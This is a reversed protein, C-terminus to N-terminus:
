ETLKASTGPDTATKGPSPTVDIVQVALLQRASPRMEQLLGALLALGDKDLPANLDATASFVMSKEQFEPRRSKLLVILGVPNGPDGNAKPNSTAELKSMLEDTQAQRAAEVDAGFGGRDRDRYALATDPDVGVEEAARYYGGHVRIREVYRQQWGNPLKRGGKRRSVSIVSDAVAPM